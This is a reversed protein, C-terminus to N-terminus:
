PILEGRTHFLSNEPKVNNFRLVRKLEKSKLFNFQPYHPYSKFLTLEIEKASIRKRIKLNEVNDRIGLILNVKKFINRDKISKLLELVQSDFVSGISDCFYFLYRSNM